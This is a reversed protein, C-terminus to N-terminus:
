TLALTHRGGELWRARAVVAFAFPTERPTGGDMREFLRAFASQCHAEEPKEIASSIWFQLKIQMPQQSFNTNSIPHKLFAIFLPLRPHGGARRQHLPAPFSSRFFDLLFSAFRLLSSLFSSLALFSSALSFSAILFRSSLFSPFSPEIFM